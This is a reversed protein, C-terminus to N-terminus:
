PTAERLLELFKGKIDALPLASLELLSATQRPREVTDYGSLWVSMRLDEFHEDPSPKGEAWALLTALVRRSTPADPNVVQEAVWLALKPYVMSLDAGLPIARLWALHFETATEDEHEEFLDDAVQAVLASVGYMREFISHVSGDGGNSAHTMCGVSCGRHKDSWYNGRVVRDADAHAQALTLAAQQRTPDGGFATAGEPLPPFGRQYEDFLYDPDLM